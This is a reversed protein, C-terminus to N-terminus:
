RAESVSVALASRPARSRPTVKASSEETMPFEEKCIKEAATPRRGGGGGANEDDVFKALQFEFAPSPEDLGDCDKLRARRGNPLMRYDDHAADKQM